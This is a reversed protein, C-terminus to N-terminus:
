KVRKNVRRKVIYKNSSKRKNRTKYGKTPKGWPTVPHPNGQGAKGEGGGHPHDVPNMAVGRVKPRRGLWRVRGAKGHVFSSHEILGVQGVTARCESKLFRIEGSPMRLQSMGKEKAMLQAWNGASRVLVGGKGPTLELNHLLTGMPIHILKMSNGPKIDVQADLSSMIKDGVKLKDPWIIYRREKDSYEILAIRASRNPDYEISIVEGFDNFKNRKYDILRYKRKSGGGRRRSTIRGRNNRGGTKKLSVTLSKESSSRTIESFNSIAKFRLSPTVPRFKKVGM